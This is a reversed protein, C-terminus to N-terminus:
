HHVKGERFAIPLVSNECSEYEAQKGVAQQQSLLPGIYREDDSNSRVLRRRTSLNMFEAAYEVVKDNGCDELPFGSAAGRSARKSGAPMVVFFAASYTAM